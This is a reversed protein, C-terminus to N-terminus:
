GSGSTRPCRLRAGGTALDASRGTSCGRGSRCPWGPKTSWTSRRRPSSPRRARAPEVGPHRVDGIVAGTDLDVIAEYDLVLGDEELATRLDQRNQSRVEVHERM